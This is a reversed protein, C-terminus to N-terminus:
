GDGEKCRVYPKSENALIYFLQGGNIRLVHVTDGVALESREILPSLQIFDNLIPDQISSFRLQLPSSSSVTGFMLKAFDMEKPMCDNIYKALKEGAM